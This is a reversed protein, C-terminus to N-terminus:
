REQTVSCCKAVLHQSLAAKFIDYTHKTALPSISEVRYRGGQNIAYCQAVEYVSCHVNTRNWGIRLPLRRIPLVAAHFL